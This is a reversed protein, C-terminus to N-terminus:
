PTHVTNLFRPIAMWGQRGSSITYYIRSEMRKGKGPMMENGLRRKIKWPMDWVHACANVNIADYEQGIGSPKRM